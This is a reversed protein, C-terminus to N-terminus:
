FKFLESHRNAISAITTFKALLISNFGVTNKRILLTERMLIVTMLDKFYGVKFSVFVLLIIILLRM